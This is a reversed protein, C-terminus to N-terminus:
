LAKKLQDVKKRDNLVEVIKLSFEMATGAGRSTILKDCVVVNRELVDKSVGVKEELENHFNSHATM